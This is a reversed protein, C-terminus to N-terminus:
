FVHKLILCTLLAKSKKQSQFLHFQFSFLFVSLCILSVANLGSFFLFVIIIHFQQYSIKTLLTFTKENTYKVSSSLDKKPYKKPSLKSMKKM